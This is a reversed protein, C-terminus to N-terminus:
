FSHRVGVSYEKDKFNEKTADTREQKQEGYIAYATTRKSLNYNVAFQYGKLDVEKGDAVKYDGFGYGARLVTKASVPVSVSFANTERDINSKSAVSVADTQDLKTYIYAVKAVGFDYSAAASTTKTQIKTAAAATSVLTLTDTGNANKLFTDSTANTNTDADSYAAALSLKGAAYNAGFAYGEGSKTTDKGSEEVNSRTLGATVQVGNMRPSLYRVGTAFATHASTGAVGYATSHALNGSVNAAALQDHALWVDRAESNQLGIRIEGLKSDEVGAWFARGGFTMATNGAIASELVFNAKMGGGLDETGRFGLRSTSAEGASQISETTKSTGNAATSSSPTSKIENLGADVVGYITVSSQAQATGAVMALAATAILLKKM